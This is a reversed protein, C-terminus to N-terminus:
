LSSKASHHMIDPQKCDTYQEHSRRESGAFPCFRASLSLSHSLSIPSTRCLYSSLSLSLSGASSPFGPGAKEKEKKKKKLVGCVKYTIRLSLRGCRRWSVAATLPIAVNRTFIDWDIKAQHKCHRIQIVCLNQWANNGRKERKIAVIPPQMGLSDASM